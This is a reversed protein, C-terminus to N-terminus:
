NKISRSNILFFTLSTRVFSSVRKVTLSITIYSNISTLKITILKMCKGRIKSGISVNKFRYDFPNSIKTTSPCM